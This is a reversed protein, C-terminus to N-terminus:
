LSRAFRIVEKRFDEMLFIDEKVMEEIFERCKEYKKQNVSEPLIFRDAKLIEKHGTEEKFWISFVKREGRHLLHKVKLFLFLEILGFENESVKNERCIQYKAEEYTDAHLNTALIHRFKKLSFFRRLKEGWLYAYYSGRGIEHCIFCSPPLTEGRELIEDGDTHFIKMECPIFNILSCMVTTKGAGGPSAGVIFSAGGAIREMLFASVDISLTKAKILDIVSLM